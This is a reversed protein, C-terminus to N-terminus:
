CAQVVNHVWARVLVQEKTVSFVVSGYPTQAVHRANTEPETNTLKMVLVM